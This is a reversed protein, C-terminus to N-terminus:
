IGLDEFSILLSTMPTIVKVNNREGIFDFLYKLAKFRTTQQGKWNCNDLVIINKGKLFIGNFSLSSGYDLIITKFSQIIALQIEINNIQYTNLVTGDRNVINDEIQDM